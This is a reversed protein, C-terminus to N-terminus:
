RTCGVFNLVTSICRILKNYITMIGQEKRQSIVVDMKAGSTRTKLVRFSGFGVERGGKGDGKGNV